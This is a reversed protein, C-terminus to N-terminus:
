EIKISIKECVYNCSVMHKIMNRPFLEYIPLHTKASKAVGLICHRGGWSHGLNRIEM